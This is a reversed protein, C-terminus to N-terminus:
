EEIKDVIEQSIRSYTRPIEDQAYERLDLLHTGWALAEVFKKLQDSVTVQKKVRIPHDLKGVLDARRTKVQLEYTLDDDVKIIFHTALYPKPRYKNEGQRWDGFIGSYSNLVSARQGLPIDHRISKVAREVDLLTEGVFKGKILDRICSIGRLKTYQARSRMREEMSEITKVGGDVYEGELGDLLVKMVENKIFEAWEKLQDPQSYALLNLRTESRNEYYEDDHYTNLYNSGSLPRKLPSTLLIDDFRAFFEDYMEDYAEHLDGFEGVLADHIARIEELEEPTLEVFGELEALLQDLKNKQTIQEMM